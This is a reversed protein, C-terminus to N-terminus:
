YSGVRGSCMVGPDSQVGRSPSWGCGRQSEAQLGISNSPLSLPLQSGGISAAMAVMQPRLAVSQGLFPRMIINPQLFALIFQNLQLWVGPKSRRRSAAIIEPAHCDSATVCMRMSRQSCRIALFPRGHCDGPGPNLLPRVSRRLGPQQIMARWRAGSRRSKFGVPGGLVDRAALPGMM